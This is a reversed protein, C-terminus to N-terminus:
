VENIESTSGKKEGCCSYIGEGDMFNSLIALTVGLCLYFISILMGCPFVLSPLWILGRSSYLFCVVMLLHSCLSPLPATHLQPPQVVLGRMGEPLSVCYVSKQEFLVRSSSFNGDGPLWLYGSLCCVCKARVKVRLPLTNRM